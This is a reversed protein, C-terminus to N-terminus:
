TGWCIEKVYGVEFVFDADEGCYDHPEENCDASPDYEVVDDIIYSDGYEDKVNMAYAEAHAFTPAVVFLTGTSSSGIKGVYVEYFNTESQPASLLDIERQLNEIQQQKLAIVDNLDTM